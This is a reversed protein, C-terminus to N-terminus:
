NEEAAEEPEPKEGSVILKNRLHIEDLEPLGLLITPQYTYEREAKRSETKGYGLEVLMKAANMRDRQPAKEDDRVDILLQISEGTERRARDRAQEFGSM